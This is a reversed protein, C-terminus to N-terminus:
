QEFPPMDFDTESLSVQQELAQAQQTIQHELELRQDEKEAETLEYVSVEEVPFYLDISNREAELGAEDSVERESVQDATLLTADPFADLQSGQEIETEPEQVIVDEDSGAIQQSLRPSLQATSSQDIEQETASDSTNKLQKITTQRDLNNTLEQEVPISNNRSVSYLVSCGIALGSIVLIWKIKM